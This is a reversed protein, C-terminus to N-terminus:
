SARPLTSPWAKSSQSFASASTSCRNPQPHHRGAAAVPGRPPGHHQRCRPPRKLLDPPLLQGSRRGTLHADPHAGAAHAAGIQVDHVTFQGPGAVRHHGAVLDHSADACQPRTDGPQRHPLTDAHRPHAPGAAATRVTQGPPFIETRLGFEGAPLAIATIGILHQGICAMDERNRLAVAIGLSSRQQTGPQDAPAGVGHRARLGVADTQVAEAGRCVEDGLDCAVLAALDVGEGARAVRGGLCQGPLQTRGPHAVRVLGGGHRQVRGQQERRHTCQDRHCQPGHTGAAGDDAGADVHAVDRGEGIGPQPALSADDRDGVEGAAIAVLEQPHRGRDRQLDARM